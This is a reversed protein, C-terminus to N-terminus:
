EPKAKGARANKKINSSNGTRRGPDDDVHNQDPNSANTKGPKDTTKKDNNTLSAGTLVSQLNESTHYPTLEEPEDMFFGRFSQILEFFWQYHNLIDPNLISLQNIAADPDETYSFLEQSEEDTLQDFLLGAYELPEAERKAGVLCLGLLMTIKELGSHQSVIASQPVAAQTDKFIENEIAKVNQLHNSKGLMQKLQQNEHTLRQLQAQTDRVAQSMMPKGFTDIAKNIAPLLSDSEKGDSGELGKMEKLLTLVEMAGMPKEREPMFAKLAMLVPPAVALIDKWNFQSDKPKLANELRSIMAENQELLRQTIDNNGQNNALIESKGGIKEAIFFPQNLQLKGKGNYIMLRYEGAGYEAQCKEIMQSFTYDSASYSFCHEYGRIGRRARKVKFDFSADASGLLEDYYAHLAEEDYGASKEEFNNKNNSVPVLEITGNNSGTKGAM